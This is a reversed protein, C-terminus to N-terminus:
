AGDLNNPSKRKTIEIEPSLGFEGEFDILLEALQHPADIALQSVRSAYITKFAVIPRIKEAALANTQFYGIGPLGRGPDDARYRGHFCLPCIMCNLCIPSPQIKWLRHIVTKNLQSVDQSVDRFLNAIQQSNIPQQQKM